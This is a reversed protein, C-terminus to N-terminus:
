VGFPLAKHQSALWEMCRCFFPLYLRSCCSLTVKGERSDQLLQRANDIYTKLGGHYSSDLLVIQQLM